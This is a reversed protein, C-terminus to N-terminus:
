RHAGAKSAEGGPAHAKAFAASESKPVKVTFQTQTGSKPDLVDCVYVEWDPENPQSSALNCVAGDIVPIASIIAPLSSCALVLLAFIGGVWAMTMTEVRAFGALPGSPAKPISGKAEALSEPTQSPAPKWRHYVAVIGAIAASILITRWKDATSPIGDALSLQLAGIAGGAFTTVVVSLTAVLQSQTLATM